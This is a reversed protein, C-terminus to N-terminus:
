ITCIGLNDGFPLQADLAICEQQAGMCPAASETDCVSTCCAEGLPCEMAVDTMCALGEECEDHFTYPEFLSAENLGDDAVCSFTSFFLTCKETPLCNSDFPDCIEFCHGYAGDDHVSCLSWDPCTFGDEPQGQCLVKCRGGYCILGRECTDEGSPMTGTCSDGRGGADPVIPRCKQKSFIEPPEIPLVVCKEGEPCQDNWTVCSEDQPLDLTGPGSSSTPTAFTSSTIETALSTAGPSSSSSTSGDDNQSPKPLCGLLVFAPVVGYRIRSPAGPRM